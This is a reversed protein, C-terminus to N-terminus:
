GRSLRPRKIKPEEAVKPDGGLEIFKQAAREVAEPNEIEAFNVVQLALAEKKGTNDQAMVMQQRTSFNFLLTLMGGSPLQKREALTDKDVLAFRKNEEYAKQCAGDFFGDLYIVMPSPAQDGHASLLEKILAPGHTQVDAGKSVLFEAMPLLSNKAAIRLPRGSDYNVDAGHKMLIEAAAKGSRGEKQAAVECLTEGLAQNAGDFRDKWRLVTELMKSSEKAVATKLAKEFVADEAPDVNALFEDCGEYFSQGVAIKAIDPLSIKLHSPLAENGARVIEWCEKSKVEAVATFVGFSQQWSAYFEPGQEKCFGYISRLADASKHRIATIIAEQVQATGIKYFGSNELLYRIHRAHNTQACGKLEAYVNSRNLTKAWVRGEVSLEEWGTPKSFM